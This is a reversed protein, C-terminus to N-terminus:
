KWYGYYKDFMRNGDAKEVSRTIKLHRMQYAVMTGCYGHFSGKNYSGLSATYSRRTAAYLADEAEQTTAAAGLPLAAMALVLALLIVWVRRIM